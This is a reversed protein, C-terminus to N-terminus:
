VTWTESIEENQIIEKLRNSAGEVIDDPLENYAFFSQEVIERNPKPVSPQEWNNIIFVAIHDGPFARFNTFIGHLKPPTKIIIGTEEFIERELASNATENREVGGGPFHWGPRYGHRVLLVRRDKDFIVGQAGLTISRTFRWYSQFLKTLVQTM